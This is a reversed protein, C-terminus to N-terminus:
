ESLPLLPQQGPPPEPPPADARSALAELARIKLAQMELVNRLRMVEDALRRISDGPNDCPEDPKVNGAGL